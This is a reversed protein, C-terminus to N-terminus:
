PLREIQVTGGDVADIVIRFGNLLSMGILPESDLQSVFVRRPQGDWLVEAAFVDFLTTAGDALVGQGDTYWSFGLSAILKTPLTLWGNFGTDVLANMPHERRNPDLVILPV